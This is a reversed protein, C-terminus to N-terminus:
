VGDDVNTEADEPLFAAPTEAMVDLAEGAGMSSFVYIFYMVAIAALTFFFLRVCKLVARITHMPIVPPGSSKAM